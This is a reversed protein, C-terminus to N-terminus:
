AATMAEKCKTAYEGAKMCADVEDGQFKVVGDVTVTGGNVVVRGGSYKTLCKLMQDRRVDNPPHTPNTIQENKYNIYDQYAQQSNQYNEKAKQYDEDIELEEKTLNEEYVQMQMRRTEIEAELAMMRNEDERISLIFNTAPAGPNYGARALIHFGLIDADTENKLGIRNTLTEGAYLEAAEAKLAHNKIGHALEHAIISAIRNEGYEKYDSNNMAKEIMGRNITVYNSAYCAANITEANTVVWTFPNEGEGIKVEGNKLLNEMIEDAMNNIKEDECAGNSEFNILDYFMDRSQANKALNKDKARLIEMIGNASLFGAAGGLAMLEKPSVGFKKSFAELREAYRELASKNEDISEIEPLGKGDDEIPVGDWEEQSINFFRAIEADTMNQLDEININTFRGKSQHYQVMEIMYEKLTPPKELLIEQEEIPEKIEADIKEDESQTRNEGLATAAEKDEKNENRNEKSANQQEQNMEDQPQVGYRKIDKQVIQLLRKREEPSLMVREQANVSAMACVYFVVMIALLAIMLISSIKKIKKM